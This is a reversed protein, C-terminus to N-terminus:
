KSVEFTIENHGKEVVTTTLGSTAPSAYKSPLVMVQSMPTEPGAGAPAVVVQKSLAVAHDGAVAGDGERFTKLLFRGNGDSIGVATLNHVKSEFSVVVGVEPKGDVLVRGQVKYTKPRQAEWKDMRRGCSASTLVTTVALVFQRRWITPLVNNKM